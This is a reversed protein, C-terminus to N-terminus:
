LDFAQMVAISFFLKGPDNAQAKIKIEDLGESGAM